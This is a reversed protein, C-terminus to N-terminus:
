PSHFLNDRWRLWWSAVLLALMLLGIGVMIRFAFAGAAFLAVYEGLSHGAVVDPMERTESVRTLHSLAGIVFMAPQAFRHDSLRESPGDVCLQRVSYGLVEDAEDVLDPFRGFLDGGM